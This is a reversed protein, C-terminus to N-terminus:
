RLFMNWFELHTQTVRDARFQDNIFRCAEEAMANKDELWDGESNQIRKLQLRRRRGNVQTHFFKTNRDGDKFWQFGAKQKWFQKELALFKLLEAQVRQLRERNRITPNLEFHVEHALVIKELSAINQFIDRYTAKSWTLLAKKLKKLKYYFLFFISAHFDAKCNEIVVENFSEHKIWFNLFRFSKKIPTSDLNCSLLLPSHDSGIKSLHTVEMGAM